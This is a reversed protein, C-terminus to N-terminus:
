LIGDAKVCDVIICVSNSYQNTLHATLHTRTPGKINKRNDRFITWILSKTSRTNM